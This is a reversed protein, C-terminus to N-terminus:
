RPYLANRAIRLVVTSNCAFPFALPRFVECEFGLVIDVTESRLLRESAQELSVPIRQRSLTRSDNFTLQYCRSRDHENSAAGATRFM